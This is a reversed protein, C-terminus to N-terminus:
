QAESYEGVTKLLLAMNNLGSFVAPHNPKYYKKLLDLHAM